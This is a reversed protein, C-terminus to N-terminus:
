YCSFPQTAAHVLCTYKPPLFLRPALYKRVLETRRHNRASVTCGQLSNRQEAAPNKLKQRKQTGFAM